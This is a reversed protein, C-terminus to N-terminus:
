VEFWKGPLQRVGKKLEMTVLLGAVKFSPLGCGLALQDIHTKGKEKLFNFILIEENTLNDPQQIPLPIPTHNKKSTPIEWNLHYILDAASTLVHAQQTKLLMNCGKSYPDTTRGPVAMVERNYSNAIQATVLSGGREASEIVLTAKSLGAIIRNRKLFNKPHFIDTSWFETIFGGNQELHNVYKEHAKPYLHNLGHGLCAVTQLKHNLAAKHAAIDIGYAFGSVIIPNFIAIEELLENCFDIGYRTAKRTGVISIIKSTNNLNINGKQFLVVPGDICEKLNKPYEPNTYLWSRIQNNKLFELEKGAIQRYKKDKLLKIKKEGFGDIKLLHDSKEELVGRASGVTQILKKISQNGLKPVKQLQLTALLEDM